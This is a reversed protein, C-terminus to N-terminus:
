KTDPMGMLMNTNNGLMYQPLKGDWKEIWKQKLVLPTITAALNSNEIGKAEAEYRIKEKLNKAQLAQQEAIMKQNIANEFDANYDVNTVSVNIVDIYYVKLRDALNKEIAARLNQRNKAIDEIRFKGLEAKSTDMVANYMITDEINGRINQFIDKIHDGEIRWNITLDLHITQMDSSFGEVKEFDTKTITLRYKESHKTFPNVWHYGQGLTDTIKGSFKDFVVASQGIGLMVTGSFMMIVCVLVIIAGGMIKLMSMFDEDM